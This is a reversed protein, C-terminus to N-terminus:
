VRDIVTIEGQYPWDEVRSVLGARVPNERVYLWKESYSEASRMLHDFFGRQWIDVGEHEIRIPEAMSRRLGRVWIGLQFEHGGRVFLHVHDPMIVYCGVAVGHDRIGKEAYQRFAVHVEENTLVPKRNATCFTVFYLPPLYRDFVVDLRHPRDTHRYPMDRFQWLLPEIDLGRHLAGTGPRKPM